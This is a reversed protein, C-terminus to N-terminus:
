KRIKRVAILLVAVALVILAVGRAFEIRRDRIIRNLDDEPRGYREYFETLDDPDENRHIRMTEFSQLADVWVRAEKEENAITSEPVVPCEDMRPSRPHGLKLAKRYARYALRKEDQAFLADGLASFVPGTAHGAEILRCLADVEDPLKEPLPAAVAPRLRLYPESHQIYKGAITQAPGLLLLLALPAM